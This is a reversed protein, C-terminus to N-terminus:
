HMSQVVYNKFNSIYSSLDKLEVRHSTPGELFQLAGDINTVVSQKPAGARVAEDRKQKLWRVCEQIIETKQISIRLEEPDIENQLPIEGESTSKKGECGYCYQLMGMENMILKLFITKTGFSKVTTGGIRNQTGDHDEAYVDIRTSNYILGHAQYTITQWTKCPTGRPLVVHFDPENNFKVSVTRVVMSHVMPIVIPSKLNYLRCYADLATICAGKAVVENPNVNDLVRGVGFEEELRRKVMPIYSSGGVLLIIDKPDLGQLNANRICQRCIDISLEIYQSILSEFEERTVFFNDEEDLGYDTVDFEVEEQVSLQKKIEEAARRLKARRNNNWTSVSAGHEELQQVLYNYVENDFDQGGLLPHGDNMIVRYDNLQTEMLAVDFTGGGLDYVLIHRRDVANVTNSALAAASPEYMVQLVNLGAMKAAAITAYVQASQFFAPVTIVVDRIIQGIFKSAEDVLYQLFYADLQEPYMACYSGNDLKLYYLPRDNQDGQVTFTYSSARLLNTCESMSRGILRKIDYITNEPQHEANRKAARGFQFHSNSYSIFSPVTCDGSFPVHTFNGDKYVYVCSFCTGLDIGACLYRAEM